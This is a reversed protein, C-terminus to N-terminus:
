AATLQANTPAYENVASQLTGRVIAPPADVVAELREIAQRLRAADPRKQTVVRIKEHPTPATHEDDTNLQEFLKEGPRVGTFRIHIDRGEVLGAHAIMRRALDLISVPQGMDLLFVEGGSGIAGAQMVLQTAEPITMFYRLMHPHTVTVPGGQEIQKQFIPVVSGSSGIVNGFRVCCCRTKPYVDAAHQVLMEAVRKTAGMVSSPNVAKDTSILVFADVGAHVAVELAHRTGLVNNRV